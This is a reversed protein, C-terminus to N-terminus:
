RSSPHKKHARYVWPPMPEPGAWIGRKNTKARQEEGVYDKSFHRYALAWGSEVMAASIDQGGVTCTAVMRGYPDTDRRQCCVSRRDVISKLEAFSRKGCAFSRGNSSPCTQFLEFADIGFLRVRSTAFDLSDGDRIHPHGSADCSDSAARSDAIKSLPSPMPYRSSFRGAAFALATLLVIAVFRRTLLM